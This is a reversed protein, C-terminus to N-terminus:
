RSGMLDTIVPWHRVQVVYQSVALNQSLKVADRGSDDDEAILKTESNPGFLSVFTDTKGTTEIVHTGATAVKFMYRDREGGVSIEGKVSPGNVVL